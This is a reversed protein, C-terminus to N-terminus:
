IYVDNKTGYNNVYNLTVLEHHHEGGVGRFLEVPGDVVPLFKNISSVEISRTCEFRLDLLTLVNEFRM